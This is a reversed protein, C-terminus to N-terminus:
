PESRFAEPAEDFLQRLKAFALKRRFAPDTKERIAIKVHEPAHDAREKAYVDLRRAFTRISM